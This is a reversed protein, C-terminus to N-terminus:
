HNHQLSRISDPRDDASRTTGTWIENSSLASSLTTFNPNPLVDMDHSESDELGKITELLSNQFHRAKARFGSVHTAAQARQRAYGAKREKQAFLSRFSVLCAVFFSVVWETIIWFWVWTVDEVTEDAGGYASTRVITVAITLLVLSFIASLLIKKRLNIRIGWLIFTPFFIILVDSIVDLAVSAKFIASNDAAKSSEACATLINESPALLCRYQGTGIVVVYCAVTVVLFAWWLIMFKTIKSGLRYFFVLFALKILWLGTCSLIFFVGFGQLAHHVIDLFDPGPIEKGNLVSTETYVYHLVLQSWIAVVLFLLLSALMLWDDLLLRRHCTLRIHARCGYAVVCLSFGGWILGHFTKLPVVPDKGTAEGSDM